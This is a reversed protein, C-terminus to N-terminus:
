CDIARTLNGRAGIQVGSLRRRHCARQLRVPSIREAWGPRRRWSDVSFSIRIFRQKKGNVKAVAKNNMTPTVGLAASVAIVLALPVASRAHRTRGSCAAPRPNM